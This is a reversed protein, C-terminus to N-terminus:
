FDLRGTARLCLAPFPTSSTARYAAENLSFGAHKFLVFTVPSLFFGSWTSEQVFNQATRHTQKGNEESVQHASKSIFRCSAYSSRKAVVSIMSALTIPPHEKFCLSDLEFVTRSESITEDEDELSEVSVAFFRWEM